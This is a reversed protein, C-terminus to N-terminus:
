LPIMDFALVVRKEKANFPNANFPRTYHLLSSPFLCLSGTIVDISRRNESVAADNEVDESAVVLNGSDPQSKPPVNIYISGTLWGSDHMHAALKGGEAMSVIWGSLAYKKPWNSILGENSEKFYKRYNEIETRIIMEIERGLEGCQSFVNGATQIGNTLLTQARHEAASDTLLTSAIRGFTAAFDVTHLLSKHHVFNLPKQCYPNRLEIGYRKHARSVYSGIVANKEGNDILKRLQTFIAPESGMEYLCKLLYQQSESNENLSFIEAAERFQKNEYLLKALNTAALSHQPDLILARKYSDHANGLSGSDHLAVGLFYHTEAVDQNISLARRFNEIAGNLDGKSHLVRGISCFASDLNPASIIAQRYSTLAADLDGLQQFANGLNYHATALNPNIELAKKCSNIAADANGIAQMANAVNSHAEAFNPNIALAHNFCAISEQWEGKIQLALGLDSYAEAYNPDIQISKRYSKIAGDVDGSDLQVNAMNAHYDAFSPDLKIAKAYSEVALDYELLAAYVAGCLNLLVASKPFRTCLLKSISLAREFDGQTYLAVILQLEDNSPDRNIPVGNM